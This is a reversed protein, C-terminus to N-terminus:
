MEMIIADGIDYAVKPVCKIPKMDPTYIYDRYEMPTKADDKMNRCFTNKLVMEISNFDISDTNEIDVISSVYVEKNELKEVEFEGVLMTQAIHKNNGIYPIYHPTKNVINNKIKEVIDKDDNHFFIRFKPNKLVEITTPSKTDYGSNVYWNKVYNQTIFMSKFHYMSIISIFSDRLKPYLDRRDIGAIAGLIGIIATRPLVEFSTLSMNTNHNRIHGYDSWIDFCLVKM